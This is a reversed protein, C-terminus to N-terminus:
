VFWRVRRLAIRMAGAAPWELVWECREWDESPAGEAGPIWSVSREPMPGETRVEVREGGVLM